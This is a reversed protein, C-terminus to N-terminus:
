FSNSPRTPTAQRTRLIRRALGRLRVGAHRPLIALPFMPYVYWLLPDLRLAKVCYGLGTVREGKALCDGGARGYRRAMRKGAVEALEPNRAVFRATILEAVPLQTDIRATLNRGHERKYLHVGPVHQFAWREAVRLFMDADENLRLSPDFSGVEDFIKRRLIVSSPVVPGGELFFSKLLDKTHPGFRRVHVVTADSRDAASFAHFDGYVLGVGPDSELAPLQRELKDPTWLDDGDLIAIFDGTAEALAMNRAASPGIGSAKLVKLKGIEHALGELISQSQDASGDNVVIIESVRGYATQATVSKIAQEIFAAENHCTMIVSVNGAAGM